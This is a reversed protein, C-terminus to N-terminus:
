FGITKPSHCCRTPLYEINGITDRKNEWQVFLKGKSPSAAFESKSDKKSRLSVSLYTAKCSFRAERMPSFKNVNAKRM